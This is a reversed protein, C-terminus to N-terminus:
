GQSARRRWVVTGAALIGLALALLGLEPAPAAEALGGAGTRPMGAVAARADVVAKAKLAPTGQLLGLAFISYTMGADLRVGPVTLVATAQGAPRVELDYTGAAVDVYASAARFAVNQIVVPGGKVAVDVAPADPSAHVLRVRAKGAPPTSLDDTLVVPAIQAVRGTAAVTYAKGAEVTVNAEIVGKETAPAGAPLVKVPYTGAPVSLYDSVAEFPVNSLARNGAVYVDVSPADPSAHAVRVKAMAGQAGVAPASLGLALLVAIGWFILRDVPRPSLRSGNHAHM